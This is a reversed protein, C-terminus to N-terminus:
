QQIYTLVGQVDVATGATVLCLGQSGPTSTVMAGSGGYSVVIPSTASTLDGDGFVGTLAHTGTCATSTGYELEASDASTASPAISFSFGCVYISTSGSVAVLSTTTASKVNIAVSTKAGSMCPDTAPVFCPNNLGGCVNKSSSLYGPVVEQSEVQAHAAFPTALLALTLLNRILKM